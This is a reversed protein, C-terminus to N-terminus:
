QIFDLLLGPCGSSTENERHHKQRKLGIILFRFYNIVKKINRRYSATKDTVM